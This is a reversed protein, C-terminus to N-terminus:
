LKSGLADQRPLLRPNRINFELYYYCCLFTYSQQMCHGLAGLTYNVYLWFM